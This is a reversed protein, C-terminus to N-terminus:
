SDPLLEYSIFKLDMELGIPAPGEDKNNINYGWRVTGPVISAILLHKNISHIIVYPTLQKRRRDVKKWHGFNMYLNDGIKKM